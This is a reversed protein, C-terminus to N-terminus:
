ETLEKGRLFIKIAFPFVTNLIAHFSVRRLCDWEWFNYSHVFEKWPLLQRCLGNKGADQQLWHAAAPAAEIRSFLGSIQIYIIYFLISICFNCDAALMGSMKGPCPLGGVGRDLAAPRVM